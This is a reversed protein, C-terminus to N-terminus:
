AVTVQSEPLTDGQKFHMPHGAVDAFSVFLDEGETRIDAVVHGLVRDGLKLSSVPIEAM